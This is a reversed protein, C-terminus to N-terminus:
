IWSLRVVRGWENKKKTSLETNRQTVGCCTVGYTETATAKQQPNTIPIQNAAAVVGGGGLMSRPLHAYLILDKSIYSANWM